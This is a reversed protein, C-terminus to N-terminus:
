NYYTVGNVTRVKQPLSVKYNKDFRSIPDTTQEAASNIQSLGYGVRNYGCDGRYYRGGYSTRAYPRSPRSPRSPMSVRSTRIPPLYGVPHGTQPSYSGRGSNSMWGVEYRPIPTPHYYNTLQNANVSLMGLSMMFVFLLFKKM